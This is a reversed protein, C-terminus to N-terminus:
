AEYWGHFAVIIKDTVQELPYKSTDVVFDYLSPQYPNVGYTEEYRRINSQQREQLMAMYESVDEPINESARREPTIGALIREAAVEPPLTLYVRFSQPLMYGSLHGDFILEDQERGIQKTREDVKHDFEVKGESSLNFTRIDDIGQERGLQRM